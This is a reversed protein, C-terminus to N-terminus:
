CLLIINYSCHLTVYYYWTVIIIIIIDEVM